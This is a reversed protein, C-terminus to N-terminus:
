RKLQAAASGDAEFSHNPAATASNHFVLFILVGLVGVIDAVNFIGTRVQGIGLNLFDTVLGNNLIRDILNGLGSAGILTIAVVHSRSLGRWFLAACILGLVLFGVGAQFIVVRALNSLTAGLSLFAGSNEAYTLRVTDHLFSMTPADSLYVRAFGKTVQDCGVCGLLLTAVVLFRTLKHM